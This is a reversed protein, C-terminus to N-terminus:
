VYLNIRRNNVLLKLPDGLGFTQSPLQFDQIPLHFNYTNMKSNKSLLNVAKLDVSFSSTGFDTSVKYGDILVVKFLFYILCVSAILLTIFLKNITIKNYM